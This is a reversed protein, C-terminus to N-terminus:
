RVGDDFHDVVIHGKEDIRDTECQRLPRQGQVEQRVRNKGYRAIGGSVQPRNLFAALGVAGFMLPEFRKLVDFHIADDVGRRQARQLRLYFAAHPIHAGRAGIPRFHLTRRPLRGLVQVGQTRAEIHEIDGFGLRQELPHQVTMEREQTITLIPQSTRGSAYRQLGHLRAPESDQAGAVLMRVPGAAHQGAVDPTLAPRTIQRQDGLRIKLGRDVSRAIDVIDADLMEAGRAAQDALAPEQPEPGGRGVAGVRAIDRHHAVLDGLDRLVESQGGVAM